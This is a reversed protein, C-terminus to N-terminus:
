DRGRTAQCQCSAAGEDTRSRLSRAVIEATDRSAGSAGGIRELAGRMLAQRGADFMRWLGFSGALRATTQPNVPDLRILWDAVFDYGAATPATSARRTARLRFAGILARFRNPNRWDFDPHRSLESVTEVASDPPALGAQVAFWKDIM